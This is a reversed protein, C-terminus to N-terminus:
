GCLRPSGASVLNRGYVLQDIGAWYAAAECMPCPRSSSYMTAGTLDRNGLRRTADRIAAMEAHGTPDHDIIVRSWSQGVIQSDRAVVAGYSQDGREVAIQRMEFARAMFNAATPQLPQPIAEADEQRALAPYMHSSGVMLAAMGSATLISRRAFNFPSRQQSPAAAFQNHIGRRMAFTKRHM